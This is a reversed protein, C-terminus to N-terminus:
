YAEVETLRSFGNAAATIWIRIRPTTLPAFSFQRWVYTNGTVTGGPVTLWQEGDWYQVQFDTVGYLSFQQTPTPAIPAEYADQVTFVDVETITQLGAFDVQLWDASANWTSGNWGGGSGWNVGAREGDIAASPAYGTDWFSSATATAGEAASAVNIRASTALTTITFPVIQILEPGPSTSGSSRVAVYVQYDDG